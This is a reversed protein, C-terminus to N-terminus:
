GDNDIRVANKKLAYGVPGKVPQTRNMAGLDNLVLAQVVHKRNDSLHLSSAVLLTALATRTAGALRVM